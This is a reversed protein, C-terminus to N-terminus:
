NTSCGVGSYVSVNVGNHGPAFASTITVRLSSTAVPGAAVVIRKSGITSGSVFPTWSGAVLAEAAWSIIFQGTVQNESLAIRDISGTVPVIVSSTGAALYATADPTGYCSRIWNGFLKYAAAHAPDIGGTRDVAFDIELHGNNGVSNHYFTSFEALSHLTDGVTYFWHDGNQITVDVGSPYWIASTSNPPAGTGSGDPCWGCDATSWVGNATDPSGGETGCWRVPSVSVGGGNFAVAGAANPLSKILASVRDCLSGCGGDLWIEFLAGFDSWLETMLAVALDEFESQTINAQGPLLTSPPRVSHGLENLYFNNTLSFYFGHGINNRKMEDVFLTLVDEQAHYTYPAGGPLTAKPTWLLFGCGHKATLVASTAGLDNMSASWSSINLNTPAFSAPDSSNCGGLPDCGNWNESTCGPDGDHFFTAMNFHVLANISGAYQLQQPSPVPWPAARPILLTSAAVPLVVLASVAYVFM